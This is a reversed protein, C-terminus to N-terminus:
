KTFQKTEAYLRVLGICLNADDSCFDIIDNVDIEEINYDNYLKKVIPFLFTSTRLTASQNDNKAICAHAIETFTKALKDAYPENGDMFNMRVWLELNNDNTSLEM